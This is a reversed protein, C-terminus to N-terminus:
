TAIRWNIRRSYASRIPKGDLGLAPSFHARRSIVYCSMTDLAPIGSTDDVSCDAIAGKEDVLFTLGVSGQENSKISVGPYDAGSFLQNLPPTSVGEKAIRSKFQDGVNWFDQLDVLCKDLEAVVGPLDTIAFTANMAGGEWKLETMQAHARFDAMPLNVSYVRFHNKTDAFALQNTRRRESGLTLTAPSQDVQASGKRAVLIRMVGGNPSPKLMLALPKEDTGYERLAVCQAMDYSVRWPGVPTRTDAAATTPLVSAAAVAFAGRFKRM